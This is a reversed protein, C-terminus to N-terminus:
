KKILCLSFHKLFRDFHTHQQWDRSSFLRNFSWPWTKLKSKNLFVNSRTHISGQVGKKENKLIYNKWHVGVESGRQINQSFHCIRQFLCISPLKGNGTDAQWLMYNCRCAGLKGAKLVAPYESGCFFTKCICYTCLQPYRWEIFIFSSM